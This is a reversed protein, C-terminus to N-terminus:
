EVYIRVKMDTNEEPEAIEVNVIDEDIDEFVDVIAAINLSKLDFGEKRMGEMASQPVCTQIINDAYKALVLPVSVNVHMKSGKDVGNVEVRLKKGKMRRATMQVREQEKEETDTLCELLRAGDAASVTGQDIMDLIKQKESNM